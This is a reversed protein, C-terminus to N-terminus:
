SDGTANCADPNWGQEGLHPFHDKIEQVCLQSSVVWSTTLWVQAWSVPEPGLAVPCVWQVREHEKLKKKKTPASATLDHLDSSFSVGQAVEKLTSRYRLGNPNHTEWRDCLPCSGHLGLPTGARITRVGVARSVSELPLVRAGTSRSSAGPVPLELHGPFDEFPTM